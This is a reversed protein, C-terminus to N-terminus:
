EGRDQGAHQRSVELRAFFHHPHCSYNPLTLIKLNKKRMWTKWNIVNNVRILPPIQIIGTERTRSSINRLYRLLQNELLDEDDEEEEEEEELDDLNIAPTSNKKKFKNYKKKKLM